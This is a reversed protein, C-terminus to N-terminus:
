SADHQVPVGPKHQSCPGACCRARAGCVAPTLVAAGTRTSSYLGMLWTQSGVPHEHSQGSGHLLLLLLQLATPGAALICCTHACSRRGIYPQHMAHCGPLPRQQHMASCPMAIGSQRRLSTKGHLMWLYLVGSLTVTPAVCDHTFTAAQWCYAV